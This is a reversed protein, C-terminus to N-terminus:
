IAKAEASTPVPSNPVAFIQIPLSFCGGADIVILQRHVPLPEGSFHDSLLSDGRSLSGTPIRISYRPAACASGRTRKHALNQWVPLKRPYLGQRTSARNEPEM